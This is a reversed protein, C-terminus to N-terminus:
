LLNAFEAQEEPTAKGSTVKGILELKRLKAASIREENALALAEKDAKRTSDVLDLVGDTIVWDKVGEQVQQVQEETVEFPTSELTLVSDDTTITETIPWDSTTISGNPHKVFFLRM